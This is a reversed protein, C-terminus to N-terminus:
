AGVGNVGGDLRQLPRQAARRRPLREVAAREPLRERREVAAARRRRQLLDRPPLGAAPARSLHAAQPHSAALRLLPPGLQLLAASLRRGAARARRGEGVRRWGGRGWTKSQSHPRGSPWGSPRSHSTNVNVAM